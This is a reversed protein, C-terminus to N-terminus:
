IHILSLEEIMQKLRAATQNFHQFIDRFLDNRNEDLRIDFQGKEVKDFAELLTTVPYFMKRESIEVLIFFLAAFFATLAFIVWFVTMSNMLLNPRHFYYDIKLGSYDSIESLCRVKM